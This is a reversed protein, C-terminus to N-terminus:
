DVGLEVSYYGYVIQVILFIDNVIQLIRLFYGKGGMVEGIELFKLGVM